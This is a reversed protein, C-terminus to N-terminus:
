RRIIINGTSTGTKQLIRYTDGAKALMVNDGVQLPTDAVAVVVGGSVTVEYKSCCLKKTVTGTKINAADVNIPSKM